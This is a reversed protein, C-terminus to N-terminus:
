STKAPPVPRPIQDTDFTGQTINLALQTLRHHHARAYARLATFADDVSVQWREALIGKVQELIIRSTLAYQLQSREVESHALTRQQLISITAMGALAKALLIDENSLPDPDKQFLGLAGIVSERLQLPIAHTTTFGLATAAAAFQPWVNIVEPDAVKVHLLPQGTHFTDVCPGQAHQSAFVELLRSHEDSAALLQLYGQEDALLIGAAEVNLLQTCHTTFQQLFELIDFDAVLTDAVELFVKSLQQERPM